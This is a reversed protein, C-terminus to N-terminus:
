SIINKFEVWRVVEKERNESLELKAQKKCLVSYFSILVFQNIYIRLTPRKLLKDTLVMNGPLVVEQRFIADQNPLLM